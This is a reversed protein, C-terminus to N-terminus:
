KSASKSRNDSLTDDMTDDKQGVVVASFHDAMVHAYRDAVPDIRNQYVDKMVPSDQRWGGFDAIYTQPLGLVTAISAYYVRLDHFRVSEYGLRRRLKLFARSLSNPASYKVIFDEPDGDDVMDIIEKPLTVTRNSEDTKPIEKYNWKGAKDQVMDAHVTVTCHEKDIDSYKLACIEGRRLSFAGLAICLKIMPSASNFLASVDDDSPSVRKKKQKAPLTIRFVLDPAYMSIASSLLSYINRVYKPSHDASLNSVFVQLNESTLKRVEMNWVSGFNNRAMKDYGRITSPSLVGEKAAIYGTIAEGVTLTAHGYRPRSSAFSAALREAEQKTSATFSQYVSKGDEKHSYVRCRWTGSPLRKATPM